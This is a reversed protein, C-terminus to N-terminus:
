VDLVSCLRIVSTQLKEKSHIKFLYHMFFTFLGGLFKPYAINFVHYSAILAKIAEYVSKITCVIGREIILFMTISADM